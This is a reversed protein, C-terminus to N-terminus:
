NAHEYHRIREWVDLAAEYKTQMIEAAQELMAPPLGPFHEPDEMEVEEELRYVRNLVAHGEELLKGAADPWAYRTLAGYDLEVLGVVKDGQQFHRIWGHLAQLSRAYPHKSGDPGYYQTLMMLEALRSMASNTDRLRRVVTTGDVTDETVRHVHDAEELGGFAAIWHLPVSWLDMFFTSVPRSILGADAQLESIKELTDLQQQPVWRAYLADDYYKRRMSTSEFAPRALYEVHFFQHERGKHDTWERFRVIPPESSNPFTSDSEPRLRRNLREAAEAEIDASSRSAADRALDQIREPLKELPQYVRLFALHRM